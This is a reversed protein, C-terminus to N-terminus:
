VNKGTSAAGEGGGGRGSVVVHEKSRYMLCVCLSKSRDRALHLLHLHYRMTAERHQVERHRRHHLRHHLAMMQRRSGTVRLSTDESLRSPGLMVVSTSLRALKGPCAAM